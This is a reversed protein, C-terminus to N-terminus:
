KLASLPIKSAYIDFNKSRGDTWVSVLENGSIVASNYDGLYIGNIVIDYPNFDKTSLKMDKFSAGNNDSYSCYTNILVNMNDERSDQYVIYIKGTEDVCLAPLFQDTHSNDNTITVPSSFNLDNINAKTFYIDSNDNKGKACYAVYIENNHIAVQADSNVRVGLNNGFKIVAQKNVNRGPREFQAVLKNDSWTNGRDKSTKIFLEEKEKLYVCYLNGEKDSTLAASSTEEDTVLIRDIKGDNSVRAIWLVEGASEKKTYVIYLYNNIYLAKPKDFKSDSSEDVVVAKDLWNKTLVDYKNYIVKFNTVNDNEIATYYVNGNVDVAAHPDAYSVKKENQSLPIDIEQWDMGSNGSEFMTAPGHTQYNNCFVYLSNNNGAIVFPESTGPMLNVRINTLEGSTSVDKTFYANKFGFKKNYFESRPALQSESIEGTKDKMLFIYFAGFILIVIVIPFIVRFKHM